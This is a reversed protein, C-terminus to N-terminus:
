MSSSPMLTSRTFAFCCQIAWHALRELSSRMTFNKLLESSADLQSSALASASPPDAM